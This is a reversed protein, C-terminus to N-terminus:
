AALLGIVLRGDFGAYRHLPKGGPEVETVITM